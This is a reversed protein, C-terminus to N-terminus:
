VCALGVRKMFMLNGMASGHTQILVDAEVVALLQDRVAHEISTFVRSIILNILYTHMM